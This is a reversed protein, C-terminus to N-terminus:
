ETVNQSVGNAMNDGAKTMPNKNKVVRGSINNTEEDVVTSLANVRKELDFERGSMAKYHETIAHELLEKEYSNAIYVYREGNNVVRGNQHKLLKINYNGNVRLYPLNNM